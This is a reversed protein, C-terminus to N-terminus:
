SPFHDRAPSLCVPGHVGSSTTLTIDADDWVPKGVLQNIGASFLHIWKLKPAQTKPDDPVAGLTFLFDAEKYVDKSMSESTGQHYVVNLSTFQDRLHKLIEKPEDIHLVIVLTQTKENPGGGM